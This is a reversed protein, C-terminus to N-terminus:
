LNETVEINVLQYVENLDLEAEVTTLKLVSDTGIMALYRWSGDPQRVFQEIAAKDQSVLIYEQFSELLQYSWFKEARDKAATSDSLVEVILLPNVITDNRNERFLLKECVVAVDPYYFKGRNEVWVKIETQLVRCRGALQRDLSKAVNFTIQFHDLSSGAMAIVEGNEYESRYEAKDELALYEEPTYKKTQTLAAM